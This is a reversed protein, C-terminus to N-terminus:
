SVKKAIMPGIWREYVVLAVIVTVGTIIAGKWDFNKM